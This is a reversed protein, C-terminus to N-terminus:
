KNSKKNLLRDSGAHTSKEKQQEEEFEILIVVAVSALMVVNLNYFIRSSEEELDRLM